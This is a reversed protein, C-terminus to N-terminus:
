CYRTFKNGLSNLIYTGFYDEANLRPEVAIDVDSMAGFSGSRVVSGFLYVRQLDPFQPAVAHIAGGVAQLAAGRRREREEFQTQERAQLYARSAAIDFPRNVAM